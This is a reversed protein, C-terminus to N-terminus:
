FAQLKRLVFHRVAEDDVLPWPMRGMSLVEICTIAFAYVDMENTIFVAMHQMLEPAQWRLTGDLSYETSNESPFIHAIVPLLLEM